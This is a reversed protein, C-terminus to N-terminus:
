DKLFGKRRLLEKLIKRALQSLTSVACAVARVTDEGNKISTGQMSPLIISSLNFGELTFCILPSFLLGEFLFGNFLFFGRTYRVHEWGNEGKTSSTEAMSQGLRHVRDVRTALTRGNPCM